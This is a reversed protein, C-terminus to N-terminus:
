LSEGELFKKGIPSEIYDTTSGFFLVSKDLHIIKNAFQVATKIDHSIMLIAIKESQNLKKVIQYFTQMMVPDLGTVPEDLVLLKDTACLARAMLVRQQQGGSLEKYPTNKYALIDLKKMHKLALQKEKKSFFPYWGRRGLCGSLVIEFVSAPFNQQVMTQQPLYGIETAKLGELFQIQGSQTPVLGLISKILTSKGSGNKGVICVYDGAEIDFSVRDVAIKKEYAVTLNKCSLLPM